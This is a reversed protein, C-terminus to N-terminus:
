PRKDVFLAQYDLLLTELFLRANVPQESERRKIILQRYNKILTSVPIKAALQSIIVKQMPYYRNPLREATLTLDVIWKQIAEIVMKLPLSGKSAKITKDLNAASLLPDINEGHSLYGLLEDLWEHQGKQSLQMALVPAGGAFALWKEPANVGKQQLFKEALQPSPAPVPVMQCRSRITPLLRLPESSVLLFVTGDSPEELSKLLANATNQNMAETPNILIVRLGQRHTGVNLFDSLQRVQDITIQQSAKKKGDEAEGDESMADPQLLRFDPHNGQSFWNCALCRGCAIGQDIPSECLLSQAFSLAFEFKGIGQQGALLLAHPMRARRAQLTQWLPFHLEIANM